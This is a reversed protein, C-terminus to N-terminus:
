FGQFSSQTQPRSVPFTFIFYFGQSERLTHPILQLTLFDGLLNATGLSHCKEQEMLTTVKIPVSLQSAVLISGGAAGCGSGGGSLGKGGQAKM